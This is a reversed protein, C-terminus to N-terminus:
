RVTVRVGTEPIGPVLRRWQDDAGSRVLDARDRTTLALVSPGAGSIMAAHGQERLRDVLAMSAAYSPRRAEQHLWDRTAPVLLEPRRTAAEVLLAARASNRAADRLPVREPLLARATHTALTTEPVFVVATLDPHLPLVVTVTHRQGADSAPAGGDTPAPVDDLTSWSLTMGGYVTASANDPHGELESALSNVAALDIDLGDGPIPAQGSESRGAAVSLGQAAAVGSVIATASSGMGRGHPVANVTHMVLGGPVAIGLDRLGRALSRYVLHSEDRPVGDAGSGSVEIRLGPEEVVEVDLEDWVGLALGISDFGPGLNASSAPTRVRIATGVPVERV